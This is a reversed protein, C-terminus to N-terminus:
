SSPFAAACTRHGAISKGFACGCASLPLLKLPCQQGSTTNLRTSGMAFAAIDLLMSALSGVSDVKLSFIAAGLSSQVDRM